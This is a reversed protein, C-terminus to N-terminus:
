KNIKWTIRQIQYLSVLEKVINDMNFFNPSSCFIFVFNVMALVMFGWVCLPYFYGIIMM